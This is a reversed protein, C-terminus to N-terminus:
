VEPMVEMAAIRWPLQPQVVVAGGQLRWLLCSGAREILLLLVVVTAVVVAAVAEWWGGQRGVVGVLAGQTGLLVLL